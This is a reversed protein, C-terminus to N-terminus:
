PLPPLLAGPAPYSDVREAHWVKQYSAIPGVRLRSQVAPHCEGHFPLLNICCPDQSLVIPIPRFILEPSAFRFDLTLFDGVMVPPPNKSTILLRITSNTKTWQPRLRIDEVAAVPPTELAQHSRLGREVTRPRQPGSHRTSTWLRIMPVM